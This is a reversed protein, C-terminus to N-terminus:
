RSRPLVQFGGFVKQSIVRLACWFLLAVCFPVSGLCFCVFVLLSVTPTGRPPSLGLMAITPFWLKLLPYRPRQPSPAIWGGHLQPRLWQMSLLMLPPIPAPEPEATSTEEWRRALLFRFASWMLLLPSMASAKRRGQLLRPHMWTREQLLPTMMRTPPESRRRTTQTRTSTKM